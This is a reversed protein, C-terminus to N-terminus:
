VIHNMGVQCDRDRRVTLRGKRWNYNVQLTLPYLWGINLYLFISGLGGRAVGSVHHYSLGASFAGGHCRGRSCFFPFGIYPRGCCSADDGWRHCFRWDGIFDCARIVWIDDFQLILYQVSIERDGRGPYGCLFESFSWSAM